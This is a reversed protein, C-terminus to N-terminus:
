VVDSIVGKVRSFLWAGAVALLLTGAAFGAQLQWPAPQGFVVPQRLLEVMCTLPNLWMWDRWPLPVLSLPYTIPTAYFLVRLLLRMAESIDGAFPGLASLVMSLAALFAACLVLGPVLWALGPWTLRQQLLALALLLALNVAAHVSARMLNSVWLVWLPFPSKVVYSRKGAYLATSSNVVDSVVLYVALGVFFPLVFGVPRGDAAPWAVGFIAGFVLAYIGLLGLPTLVLWAIGVLSRRYKAALDRRALDWALRLHGTTASATVTESGRM